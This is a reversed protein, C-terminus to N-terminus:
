CIEYGGLIYEVIYIGNFGCDILYENWYKLMKEYEPIENPKYIYLVPKGDIKIYREDEFFKQFYKIHKEWDSKGEYLQPMLEEPDRGHWTTIWKENAWCFCYEIKDNIKERLIEAPKEFLIKDNGFWYHYFIFGSVNYKNALKIQERIDNENSLDYYKKNIPEVPQIHGKFYKKGSLPL